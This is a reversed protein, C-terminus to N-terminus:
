RKDVSWTGAIGGPGTLQGSLRNGAFSGAYAFGAATQFQLNTGSAFGTVPNAGSGASCCACPRVTFSLVGSLTGASPDLTLVIDDTGTCGGPYNVTETGEYRGAIGGAPLGTGLTTAPTADGAAGGNRLALATGGAAAGAGAVIALNRVAHGGGSRAEAPVAGRAPEPAARPVPTARPERVPPRAPEVARPPPVPAAAVAAGAGPPRGEFGPARGPAGPPAQYEARVGRAIAAPKGGCTGAGAAVPVEHERSRATVGGATAEFVYTVRAAAASPRPLVGAYCPVDSRLPAAYFPGDDARFLVRVAARASRPQLCAVVRPVEDALFCSPPTHEVGFSAGQPAATAALAGAALALAAARRLPM